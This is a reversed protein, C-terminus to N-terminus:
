RGCLRSTSASLAGQSVFSHDTSSERGNENGPFPPETSSVELYRTKKTVAHAHASVDALAAICTNASRSCRLMHLRTSTVEQPLIRLDRMAFILQLLPVWGPKRRSFRSPRRPCLLRQSLFSLQRRIFSGPAERPGGETNRAEVRVCRSLGLCRRRAPNVPYARDAALDRQQERDGGRRRGTWVVLSGFLISVFVRFFYSRAM